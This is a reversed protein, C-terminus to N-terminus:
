DGRWLLLAAAVGAGVPGMACAYWWLVSVGAVRLQGLDFPAYALALAIAYLMVLIAIGAGRGGAMSVARNYRGPGRVAVGMEM